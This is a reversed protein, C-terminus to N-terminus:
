GALEKLLRHRAMWLNSLAFLTILQQTNKALGRYRVKTHGFQRKIVRFPHEVKARVSAKLKEIKDRLAGRPTKKDLARLKGPRLAVHWPVGTAETRKDAGQYGADAFVIAEAGHLLGHGQTVDNVNAATGLVTHVLGSEADVGIHAKMGFYWQNGKRTQHMEPDREGSANKTSSPAAILTADVVTGTKLMLGRAALTANITAMIQLSLAHAELLHRFRLITTEDPLRTVGADLGAFERYLPVDHLAEEMAPDSLGFWQQMFHIRLMTLLAFAPRGTRAVPAHPEILAVLERWPVVLNMEDLFARKRTRKSSLEFGTNALSMQKM